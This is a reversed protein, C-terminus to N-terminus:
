ECGACGASIEASREQFRPLQALNVVSPEVVPIPRPQPPRRFPSPKSASEMLAGGDGGTGIKGMRLGISPWGAATPMGLLHLALPIHPPAEVNTKRAESSLSKMVPWVIRTSPPPLTWQGILSQRPAPPALAAFPDTARSADLDGGRPWRGTAMGITGPRANAVVRRLPGAGDCGRAASAAGDPVAVVRPRGPARPGPRASRDLAVM